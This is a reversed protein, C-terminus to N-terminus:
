RGRWLLGKRQWFTKTPVEDVTM